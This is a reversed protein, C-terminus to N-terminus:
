EAPMHEQRTANTSKVGYFNKYDKYFQQKNDASKESGYFKAM